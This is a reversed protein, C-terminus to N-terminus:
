WFMSSNVFRRSEGDKIEIIGFKRPPIVLEEDEECDLKVCNQYSKTPATKDCFNHKQYNAGHSSTVEVM